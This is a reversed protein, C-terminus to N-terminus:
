RFVQRVNPKKLYNHHKQHDQISEEHQGLQQDIQRDELQFVVVDKRLDSGLSWGEKREKRRERTEKQGLM